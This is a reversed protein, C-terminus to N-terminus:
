KHEELYALSRQLNPGEISGLGVNCAACLLGRVAGTSHNHDVHIHSIKMDSFKRECIACANNQKAVFANWAPKTIGYTQYIALWRGPPICTKCYLVNNTTKNFTEACIPCEKTGYNKVSVGM